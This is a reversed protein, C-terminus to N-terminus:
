PRVWLDQLAQRCHERLQRDRPLLVLGTGYDGPDPLAVGQERWIKQQFRHPMQILIGAGDGTAQDCSCAGRHALNRLIQLGDAVMDHGPDGNIRCVFGV